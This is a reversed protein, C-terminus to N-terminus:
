KRDLRRSRRFREPQRQPPAVGPERPVPREVEADPVRPKPIERDMGTPFEPSEPAVGPSLAWQLGYLFDQFKALSEDMFVLDSENLSELVDAAWLTHEYWQDLFSELKRYDMYSASSRISRIADACAMMDDRNAKKQSIRSVVPRLKEMVEKGFGLFIEVIERDGNERVSGLEELLDSARRGEQAAGDLSQPATPVFAEEFVQEFEKLLEDDVDALLSIERPRRPPFHKETTTPVAGTSRLVAEAVAANVGSIATLTRLDVSALQEKSTFGAREIAEAVAADVGPISLLEYHFTSPATTVQASTDSVRDTVPSETLPFLDEPYYAKLQLLLSRLDDVEDWSLRDRGPDISGLRHELTRVIEEAESLGLAKFSNKVAGVPELLADMIEGPRLGDQLDDLYLAVSLLPSVTQELSARDPFVEATVTNGGEQTMIGTFVQRGPETPVQEGNVAALGEMEPEALVEADGGLTSQAEEAELASLEAEFFPTPQSEEPATSAIPTGQEEATKPAAWETEESLPLEESYTSETELGESGQVARGPEEEERTQPIEQVAEESRPEAAPAVGSLIADLESMVQLIESHEKQDTAVEDVLKAVLDKARFLFDNIRPDMQIQGERLKDLLNELSHTLASTRELGIYQASGKICHVTRFINNLLEPAGGEQELRLINNDMEELLERAETIYDQLIETDIM